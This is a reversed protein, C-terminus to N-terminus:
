RCLVNRLRKKRVPQQRTTTVCANGRVGGAQLATENTVYSSTDCKEVHSQEIRRRWSNHLLDKHTLSEEKHSKM